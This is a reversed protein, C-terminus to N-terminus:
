FIKFFLLNLGCQKTIKFSCLLLFFHAFWLWFHFTHFSVIHWSLFHFHTLFFLPFFHFYTLLSLPFFHFHSLFCSQHSPLLPHGQSLPHSLLHLFLILTHAHMSSLPSPPAAASQPLLLNTLHAAGHTHRSSEHSAAVTCVPVIIICHNHKLNYCNLM